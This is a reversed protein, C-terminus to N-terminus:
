RRFNRAHAPASPNNLGTKRHALVPSTLLKSVDIGLEAGIAQLDCVTPDYSGSELESVRFRSLGVREGFEMMGLQEQVRHRTVLIGLRSHILSLARRNEKRRPDPSGGSRKRVRGRRKEQDVLKKAMAPSRKYAKAVAGISWGDDFYRRMMEAHRMQLQRHM